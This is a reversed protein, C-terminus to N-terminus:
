FDNHKGNLFMQIYSIDINRTFINILIVQILVAFIRKIITSIVNLLFVFSFSSLSFLRPFITRKGNM